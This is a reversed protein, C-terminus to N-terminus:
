DNNVRLFCKADGQGIVVFAPINRRRLCINLRNPIKQPHLFRSRPKQLCLTTTLPIYALESHPKCHDIKAM